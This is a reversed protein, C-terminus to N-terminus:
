RRAPYGNLVQSYANGPLNNLPYSDNQSQPWVGSNSSPFFLVTWGCWYVLHNFNPLCGPNGTSNQDSFWTLSHFFWRWPNSIITLHASYGDTVYTISRSDNEVTKYLLATMEHIKMRIHGFVTPKGTKGMFSRAVFRPTDRTWNHQWLGDLSATRYGPSPSAVGRTKPFFPKMMPSEHHNVGIPSWWQSALFKGAMTLHNESGHRIVM